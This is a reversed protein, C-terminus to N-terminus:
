YWSVFRSIGYYELYVDKTQKITDCFQSFLCPYEVGTM